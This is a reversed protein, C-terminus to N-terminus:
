HRRNSGVPYVMVCGNCCVEPLKNTYFTRMQHAIGRTTRSAASRKKKSTRDGKILCTGFIISPSKNISRFSEANDAKRCPTSYCANAYVTM